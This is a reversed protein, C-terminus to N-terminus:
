DERCSLTDRKSIVPGSAAVENLLHAIHIEDEDSSSLLWMAKKNLSM